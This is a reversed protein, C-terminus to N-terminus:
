SNYCSRQVAKESHYLKGLCHVCTSQAAGCHLGSWHAAAELYGLVLRVAACPPDGVCTDSGVKLWKAWSDDKPLRTEEYTSLDMFVYQMSAGCATLLRCRVVCLSALLGFPARRLQM